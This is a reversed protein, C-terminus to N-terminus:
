IVSVQFFELASVVKWVKGSVNRLECTKSKNQSDSLM